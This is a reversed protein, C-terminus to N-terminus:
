WKPVIYQLPQLHSITHKHAKKNGNKIFVACHVGVKNNPGHHLLNAPHLLQFSSESTNPQWFPHYALQLWNVDFLESLQGLIGCFLIDKLHWQM